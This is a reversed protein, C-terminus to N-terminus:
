LHYSNQRLPPNKANLNQFQHSQPLLDTNGGIANVLKWNVHIESWVELGAYLDSPGSNIQRVRVMDELSKYEENTKTNLITEWYFGFSVKLDDEPDSDINFLADESYYPHRLFKKQFDTISVNLQKEFTHGNYTVRIWWEFIDSAPRIWPVTPKQTYEQQNEYPNEPLNLYTYVSKKLQDFTNTKEAIKQDTTVHAVEKQNLATVFSPAFGSMSICTMTMLLMVLLKKM